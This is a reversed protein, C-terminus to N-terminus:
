PRHLELLRRSAAIRAAALPEIGLLELPAFRRSLEYLLGGTHCGIDLIVRPPSSYDREVHGILSLWFAENVIPLNDDLEPEGFFTAREVDLDNLPM